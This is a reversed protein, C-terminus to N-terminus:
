WSPHRTRLSAMNWAGYRNASSIAALCAVSMARLSLKPSEANGAVALSGNGLGETLWTPEVTVRTENNDVFCAYYLM